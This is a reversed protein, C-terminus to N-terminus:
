TVVLRASWTEGRTKGPTVDFTAQYRGAQIYESLVVLGLMNKPYHEMKPQVQGPLPSDAVMAGRHVKAGNRRDVFEVVNVTARLGPQVDPLQYKLGTVVVEVEEQEEIVGPKDRIIRETEDPLGVFVASALKGLDSHRQESHSVYWLSNALLYLDLGHKDAVTRIATQWNNVTEEWQKYDSFNLGNIRRAYAVLLQKSANFYTLNPPCMAWDRFQALPRIATEQPLSMQPLIWRLFQPIVADQLGSEIPPIANDRQWKPWDEGPFGVPPIEHRFAIESDRWHTWPAYIGLKGLATNIQGLRRAVPRYDASTKFIDTGIKVAYMFFEHM